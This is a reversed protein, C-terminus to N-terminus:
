IKRKTPQERKKQKNKAVWYLYTVENRSDDM